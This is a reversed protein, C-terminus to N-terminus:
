IAISFSGDFTQVKYEDQDVEYFEYEYDDGDEWEWEEEEEEDDDEELNDDNNEIKDEPQDAPAVTGENDMKDQEMDEDNADTLHQAAAAAQEQVTDTTEQAGNIEDDHNNEEAEADLTDNDHLVAAVDDDIEEENDAVGNVDESINHSNLESNVNENNNHNSLDNSNESLEANVDSEETERTESDSSTTKPSFDSGRDDIDDAEKDNVEIRESSEESSPLSAKLTLIADQSLRPLYESLATMFVQVGCVLNNLM